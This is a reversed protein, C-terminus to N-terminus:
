PAPAFSLLTARLERQLTENITDTLRQRAREETTSSVKFPWRQVGLSKGNKDLLNVEVTGRQWNWGSERLPPDLKAAATLRYDAKDADSVTFGAAATAGGLIKPLEVISNDTTSTAITVKSLLADRTRVLEALSLRPPIGQGSPDAVRLSAQVAIRNQQAEIAQQVRAAKYLPQSEVNAQELHHNASDDLAAIEQEFQRRAKDRQLVALAHEQNRAADHWLEAIEVGQLSRSTHALLSRSVQQELSQTILDGQTTQEFHQSQQAQEQIAVEFQKALDARARDQADTVAPATGRGTLYRDNPYKVSVGNIWDPATDRDPMGSCATLTAGMVIVAFLRHNM